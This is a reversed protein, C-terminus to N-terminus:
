DSTSRDFNKREEEKATILQDLLKDKRNGSFWPEPYEPDPRRVKQVMYLLQEYDLEVNATM